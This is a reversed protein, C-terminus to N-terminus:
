NGKAASCLRGLVNVTGGIVTFDRRNEPGIACPIVEGQFIGIGFPRPFNGGMVVTQMERAAQVAPAGGQDGDFRALVADGIMKDFGGDQQQIIEVQLTMLRNLYAVVDWHSNDESFGTFDQINSFLLTIIVSQCTIQGINDVNLAADVATLSVFSEIRKRLENIAQTRANIYAQARGVIKDLALALILM